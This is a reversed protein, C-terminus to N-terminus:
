CRNNLKIVIIFPFVAPPEVSFSVSLNFMVKGADVMESIDDLALGNPAFM